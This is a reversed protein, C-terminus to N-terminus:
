RSNTRRTGPHIGLTNGDPGEFFALYCVGSDITEGTFEVGRSELEAHAAEHLAIPQNDPRFESAVAAADALALTLNGTEFEGIPEAGPRQWVKSPRLGGGRRLVDGRRASGEDRRLVFDTGSVITPAATPV